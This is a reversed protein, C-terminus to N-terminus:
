VRISAICVLRFGIFDDFDDRQSVYRSAARAYWSGAVWSGGRLVRDESSPGGERGDGSNYPYAKHVSNTWEWVNGAMDRAGCPSAGSPYTAVPTIGENLSHHTNCPAEFDDFVDGWPYTRSRNSAPDWRAAKEWEAESPLRWHQGSRRALWQAYAAADHWSVCVVPHDLRRVQQKWTMPTQIIPKDSGVSPPRHGARVFCAYEAVTVPYQGIAFDDVQVEHQPAEDDSANEDHAPDSGMAFIGGPIPCLPPIIYEGGMADFGRFGLAYLTRPTLHDTPTSGIPTPAPGMSPLAPM